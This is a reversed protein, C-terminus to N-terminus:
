DQLAHERRETCVMQPEYGWAFGERRNKCCFMQSFKEDTNLQSCSGETKAEKIEFLCDICDYDKPQKNFAPYLSLSSNAEM